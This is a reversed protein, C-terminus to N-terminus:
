AGLWVREYAKKKLILEKSLFPLRIPFRYTLEIGLYAHDRDSLSPWNVKNVNMRDKELTSQDAFLYVIPKMAQNLRPQLVTNNLNQLEAETQTAASQRVEKEWEILQIFPEPIWAGYDDVFKEAQELKGQATKVRDIASNIGAGIQSGNYKAKAEDVLLEVPYLNASVLKTTEVAASKLAIETVALRVFVILVLVFSIFMPMIIAAELTIGGKTARVLSFSKFYKCIVEILRKLKM